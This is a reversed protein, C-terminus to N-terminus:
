WGEAKRKLFDVGKDGRVQGPTIGRAALVRTAQDRQAIAQQRQPTDEAVDAHPNNMAGHLMEAHRTREVNLTGEKRKKHWRWLKHLGLGAAVLGGAAALGWGVPTLMGAALLAGGAVGLAAGGFGLWSRKKRKNMQDAHHRAAAEM